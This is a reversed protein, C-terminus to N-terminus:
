RISRANSTLRDGIVTISWVILVIALGATIAEGAQGRLMSDFGSKVMLGLDATPPQVGLGLFSVAALDVVAFGLSSVAQATVIPQVNPLIQRLSIGFGSQGQLWAAQVYPMNRERLAAGRVVRAVYPIYGISLGVVVTMLNPGFIAVAILGFVIGPVAFLVDLIWSIVTDVIGRNWAALLALVVGVVTAILIVLAPGLLTIRAGWMLRSLLDRGLADAGLLHQASPGSLASLLDPFDPDYPAIWPALAAALVFVILVISAAIGLPGLKRM